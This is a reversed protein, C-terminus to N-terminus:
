PQPPELGLKRWTTSSTAARTEWHQGDQSRYAAFSSCCGGAGLAQKGIEIQVSGEELRLSQRVCRQPLPYPPLEFLLIWGADSQAPELRYVKCHHLGFRVMTQDATRLELTHEFAPSSSTATAAPAQKGLDPGTCASLGWASLLGLPIMLRTFLCSM